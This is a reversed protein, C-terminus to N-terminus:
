KQNRCPRCCHVMSLNWLPLVDLVKDFIKTLSSVNVKKEDSRLIWDQNITQPMTLSVEPLVNTYVYQFIPEFLDSPIIGGVAQCFAAMLSEVRAVDLSATLILRFSTLTPFIGREVVATTISAAM